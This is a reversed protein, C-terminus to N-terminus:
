EDKLHTSCDSGFSKEIRKEIPSVMICVLVIQNLLVRIPGCAPHNCEL